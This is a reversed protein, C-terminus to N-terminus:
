EQRACIEAKKIFTSGEFSVCVEKQEKVASENWQISFVLGNHTLSYSSFTPSDKLKAQLEEYLLQNMKQDIILQQSQVSLDRLLPVLFLGIMLMFSLSLLLELLFYGSNNKLLM